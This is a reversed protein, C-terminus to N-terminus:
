FKGFLIKKYIKFQLGGKGGRLRFRIEIWSDSALDHISTSLYHGNHLFYYSNKPLQDIISLMRKDTNKFRYLFNKSTFDKDCIPRIVNEVEMVVFSFFNFKFKLLM